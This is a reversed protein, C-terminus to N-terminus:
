GIEVSRYKAMLTEEDSLLRRKFVDVAADDREKATWVRPESPNPQPSLSPKPQSLMEKLAETPEAFCYSGRECEWGFEMPKRCRRCPQADAADGTSMSPNTM